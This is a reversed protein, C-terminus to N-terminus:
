TFTCIWHWSNHHSDSDDAQSLLLCLLNLFKLNSRYWSNIDIVIFKRLLLKSHHNFYEKLLPKHHNFYKRLFPKNHHNFYKRLLPKPLNFYKDTAMLILTQYGILLWFRLHQNELCTFIKKWTSSQHLM